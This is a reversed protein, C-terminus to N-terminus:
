EEYSATEQRVEEGMRQRLAWPAIVEGQPRSDRLRMVVKVNKM